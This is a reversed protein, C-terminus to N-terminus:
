GVTIMWEVGFRDVLVGFRGGWFADDLPTRVTGGQALGNFVREGQAADSTALTAHMIKRHSEVPIQQAMPSGEFRNLEYPELQM